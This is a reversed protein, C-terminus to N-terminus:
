KKKTKTPKGMKARVADVPSKVAGEHAVVYVKGATGAKDKMWAYALKARRRIEPSGGTEGAEALKRLREGRREAAELDKKSPGALKWNAIEEKTAGLRKTDYSLEFFYVDGEWLLKGGELDRVYAKQTYRANSKQSKEVALRLREIADKTMGKSNKSKSSV